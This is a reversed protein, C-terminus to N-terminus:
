LLLCESHAVALGVVTLAPNKTFHCSSLSLFSRELGWLAWSKYSQNWASKKLNAWKAKTRWACPRIIFVDCPFFHFCGSHEDTLQQLLRSGCTSNHTARCRAPTYGFAGRGGTYQFETCQRLINHLEAAISGQAESLLLNEQRKM